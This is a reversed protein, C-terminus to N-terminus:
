FRKRPWELQVGAYELRKLTTEYPDVVEEELNRAIQPHIDSLRKILEGREESDMIRPDTMAAVHFSAGEELLNRVAKYPLHFSGPEAGTRKRFGEGNGAKLSVRVHTKELGAVRKVYDRDVGFLIGNTELIFLKFESADVLELLGLLHEKCLTPEGGSIRLKQVGYKKAAARLNEFAEESSYFRGYDEPFDRSWDVWCYFCRLCCGVTYGTAIGGYVGTAYFATYKRENGRCVIRETERTLQVPDYPKVDPTLYRTYPM